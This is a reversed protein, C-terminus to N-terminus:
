GNNSKALISMQQEVYSAISKLRAVNKDMATYQEVLRKEFREVREELRDQQAKNETILKQLGQTRTPVAGDTALVQRALTAYRRAFGEATATGGSAASFAKELEPLNATAASLKISDVKLTGDRQAQLGIDSLRGFVSSASSTAGLTSRLRSILSTAATDGQLPGGSKSAADYRTQESLFGILANYAEAFGKVATTVAERDAALSVTVASTTTNKLDLTLGEIAGAIQNSASEVRIGNVTAVANAGALRRDLGAVAGAPDYGFRSLGANDTVDGDTDAVAVRFGNGAGSDAARLALRTGSADTVLSANVGAGAANIKDRLTALTDTSDIAIDIGSSGTKPVFSSGWQGIQITLTGAGVLAGSDPLATGSALTQNAALSEVTVSYTGSAAGSGATAGLKTSDSVAVASRRWLTTDTLKNSADQLGSFLSSVRGFLSVKTSLSNVDSQMQQLPRRELAVLQTVISNLDLGSGVGLSTIAAM